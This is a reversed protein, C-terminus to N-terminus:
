YCQRGLAFAGSIRLYFQVDLTAANLHTAANARVYYLKGSPYGTKTWNFVHLVNFKVKLRAGDVWGLLLM